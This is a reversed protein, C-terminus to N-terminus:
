PERGKLIAFRLEARKPQLAFEAGLLKAIQKVIELGFGAQGPDISGEIVDDTVTIVVTNMRTEAQLKVTQDAASMRIANQVLNSLAEWVLNADSTMQLNTPTVELAVKHAQAEPEFTHIIQDFVRQLAFEESIVAIKGADRKAYALVKDIFGSATKGIDRAQELPEASVGNKHEIVLGDLMMNLSQVPQRLDHGISKLLHQQFEYAERLDKTQSQVEAELGEESQKIAEFATDRDSIAGGIMLTSIATLLLLFQLSIRGEEYSFWTAAPPTLLATLTIATAAAPLGGRVAFLIPPLLIVYSLSGLNPGQPAGWFAVFMALLITILQFVVQHWPPLAMPRKDGFFRLLLPVLLPIVTLVGIADGVGWPLIIEWATSWPFNGVVAHLSVGSLAGVCAAALAVGIVLMQNKLDKIPLEIKWLYRLLLGSGAYILYIRLGHLIPDRSNTFEVDLAWCVWPSAIMCNAILPALMLKPPATMAVAMTVGLPLFWLSSDMQFFNYILAAKYSLLWLLVLAAFRALDSATFDFTKEMIRMQTVTSKLRLGLFKGM